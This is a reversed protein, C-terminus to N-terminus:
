NWELDLSHNENWAVRTGFPIGERDLVSKLWLVDPKSANRLKFKKTEM